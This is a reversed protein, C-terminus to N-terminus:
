GQIHDGPRYDASVTFTYTIGDDPFTLAVRAGTVLRKVIEEDFNGTFNGISLDFEHVCTTCLYEFADIDVSGLAGSDAGTNFDPSTDWEVKFTTLPDGGDFQTPDSACMSRIIRLLICPLRARQITFENAGWAGAASDDKLWPRRCAAIGLAWSTALRYACTTSRTRFLTMSSTRCSM